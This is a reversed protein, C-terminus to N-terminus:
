NSPPHSMSDQAQNVVAANIAAPLNWCALLIAVLGKLHM